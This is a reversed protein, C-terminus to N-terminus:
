ESVVPIEPMLRALRNIILHHEALEAMMLHSADPKITLQAATPSVEQHIRM